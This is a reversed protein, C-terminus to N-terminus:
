SSESYPRRIVVVFTAGSGTNSTKNLTVTNGDTLVRSVLPAVTGPVSIGVTVYPQFAALAAATIQMNHIIPATTETDGLVVTAVVANVTESQTTTPPTTGGTYGEHPGSGDQFSAYTVTVGAVASLAFLAPLISHSFAAAPLICLALALLVAGITKMSIM